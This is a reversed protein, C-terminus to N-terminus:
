LHGPELAFIENKAGARVHTDDAFATLFAARWNGFRCERHELGPKSFRLSAAILDQKGACNAFPEGDVTHLVYQVFVAHRSGADARRQTLLSDSNMTQSVRHCHVQQLRAYIARHDRQPESM